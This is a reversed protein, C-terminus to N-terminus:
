VIQMKISHNLLVQPCGELDFSIVREKKIAAYSDKAHTNELRDRWGASSLLGRTFVTGLGGYAEGPESPKMGKRQLRYSLTGAGPVPSLLIWLSASRM